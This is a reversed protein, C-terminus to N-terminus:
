SVRQALPTAASSKWRGQECRFCILHRCVVADVGYDTALDRCVRQQGFIDDFFSLIKNRRQLMVVGQITDGRQRAL